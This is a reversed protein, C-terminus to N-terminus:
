KPDREGYVWVYGRPWQGIEALESAYMRKAENNWPPLTEADHPFGSPLQSSPTRWSFQYMQTSTYGMDYCDIIHFGGVQGRYEFYAGFTSRSEYAARFLGPGVDVSRRPNGCAGALAGVAIVTVVGLNRPLRRM